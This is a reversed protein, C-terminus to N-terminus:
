RVPAVVRWVAAEVLAAKMNLDNWGGVFLVHDYNSISHNRLRTRFDTLNDRTAAFGSGWVADVHITPLLSEMYMNAMDNRQWDDNYNWHDITSDAIVLTKGCFSAILRVLDDAFRTFGAWTFHDRDDDLVDYREWALRHMKIGSLELMEDVNQQDVSRWIHVNTYLAHLVPM